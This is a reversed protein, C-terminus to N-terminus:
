IKRFWLTFPNTINRRYISNEARTMIIFTAQASVFDRTLIVIEIIFRFTAHIQVCVARLVWFGPDKRVITSLKRTAM